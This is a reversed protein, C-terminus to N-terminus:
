YQEMILQSRPKYKNNSFDVISKSGAPKKIINSKLIHRETKMVRYVDKDFVTHARGHYHDATKLFPHHSPHLQM